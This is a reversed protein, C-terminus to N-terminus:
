RNHLANVKIADVSTAIPQLGTVKKETQDLWQMLPEVKDHYEKTVALAEELQARRTEAGEKMARFRSLLSDVQAQVQAHRSPFLLSNDPYYAFFFLDM